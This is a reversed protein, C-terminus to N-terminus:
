VDGRVEGVRHRTRRVNVGPKAAAEKAYPATSATSPTFTLSAADAKITAIGASVAESGHARLFGLTGAESFTVVYDRGAEFVYANSLDIDCSLEANPLVHAINAEETTHQIPMRKIMPGSYRLPEATARDTVVLGRRAEAPDSSCFWLSSRLLPVGQHPSLNRATIRVTWAAAVAAGAEGGGGASSIALEISPEEARASPRVAAVVSSVFAHMVLTAVLLVVGAKGWRREM